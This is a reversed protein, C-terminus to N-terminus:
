QLGAQLRYGWNALILLAAIAGFAWRKRRSEFRLWRGRRIRLGTALALANWAFVVVVGVFFLSALPSQTFAASGDGVVMSSFARTGGCLPCPIGTWSLFTCTQIPLHVRGLLYSGILLAGSVAAAPLHAMLLAGRNAPPSFGLLGRSVVPQMSSPM